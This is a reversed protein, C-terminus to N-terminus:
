RATRWPGRRLVRYALREADLMGLTKARFFVGDDNRLVPTRALHHPDIRGRRNTRWSGLAASYFLRRAADNAAASAVGWPYAFHRCAVQLKDEILSKSRRMEDQADDYAATALDAHSHTHSGVSVLGTSVADDLMSWTLRDRTAPGNRKAVLSTALYLIAPFRRDAILPLVHEYFDRYGDDFSLVVGGGEDALADDLSLVEDDALAALQRAFTRRPLDIERSGAGVRHYSLIVVDGDRRRGALGLPLAATKIAKRALSSTATSNM